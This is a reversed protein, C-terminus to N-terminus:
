QIYRSLPEMPKERVVMYEMGYMDAYNQGAKYKELDQAREEGKLEVLLRRGDKLRVVFDPFYRHWRGGYLYKICFPQHEFWDVISSSELIEAFVREWSSRYLFSDGTKTTFTGKEFRNHGTMRDRREKDEWMESAMESMKKRYEPDKWALKLRQTARESNAKRIKPQNMFESMFESHRQRSEPNAQVKRMNDAAAKRFEKNTWLDRLVKSLRASSQKRAEPTRLHHGRMWKNSVVAGCGCKCFRKM